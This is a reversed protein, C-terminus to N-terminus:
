GTGAIDLGLEEVRGVRGPRPDVPVEHVAVEAALPQRGVQFRHFACAEAAPNEQFDVDAHRPPRDIEHAGLPLFEEGVGDVFGLPQAQLDGDAGPRAPAAGASGPDLRFLRHLVQHGALRGYVTGRAEGDGSGLGCGRGGNKPTPVSM